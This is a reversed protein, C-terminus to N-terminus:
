VVADLEKVGLIAPHDALIAVNAVGTIAALGPVRLVFAQEVRQYLLAAKLIDHGQAREEMDVKGVFVMTYGYACATGDGNGVVAALLPAPDGAFTLLLIHRVEMQVVSSGGTLVAADHGCAGVTQDEGGTVASGVPLRGFDGTSDVGPDVAQGE